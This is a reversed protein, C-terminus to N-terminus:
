DAHSSRYRSEPREKSKKTEKTVGDNSSCDNSPAITHKWKSQIYFEACCGILFCILEFLSLSM